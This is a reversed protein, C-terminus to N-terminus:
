CFQRGLTQQPASPRLTFEGRGPPHHRLVPSPHWVAKDIRRESREARSVVPMLQPQSEAGMRRRHRWFSRRDRTLYLVVGIAVAVLAAIMAYAFVLRMSGLRVIVSVREESAGAYPSPVRWFIKREPRLHSPLGFADIKSPAFQALSRHTAMGRIRTRGRGMRLHSVPVLSECHHEACLMHRVKRV